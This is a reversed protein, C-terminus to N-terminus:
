VIEFANNMKTLHIQRILKELENTVRIHIMDIVLIIAFWERTIIEKEIILAGCNRIWELFLREDRLRHHFWLNNSYRMCNFLNESKMSKTMIKMYKIILFWWNNEWNGHDIWIWFASQFDDLIWNKMSANFVEIYMMM